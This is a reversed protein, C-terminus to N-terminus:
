ITEVAYDPISVAVSRCLPSVSIVLSRKGRIALLFGEIGDLCGGRLRVRQGVRLFPHLGCPLKQELLTRIGQVEREPVPVPQAAAGLLRVVGATQLVLLITQNSVVFHAFLYSPFLPMQVTKNRDSWRRMQSLLPLYTTFGKDALRLVVQKEHRARTQIVYWSAKERTALPLCMPQNIHQSPPQTLVAESESDCEPSGGLNKIRFERTGASSLRPEVRM